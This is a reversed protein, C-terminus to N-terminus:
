RERMEGLESEKALIRQTLDNINKLLKAFTKATSPCPTCTWNIWMINDAKMGDWGAGNIHPWRAECLCCGICKKSDGDFKYCIYCAGDVFDIIRSCVDGEATM